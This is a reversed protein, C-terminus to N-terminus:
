KKHEKIVAVIAFIVIILVLIVGLILYPFLDVYTREAYSLQYYPRQTLEIYYKIM